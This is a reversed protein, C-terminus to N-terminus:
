GSAKSTWLTDGYDQLAQHLDLAALVARQAHDAEALATGFMAMLSRGAMYLLAGGHRQVATRAQDCVMRMVDYFTAPRTRASLALANTLSCSLMTVPQQEGSSVVLSSADPVTKPSTPTADNPCMEVAAVFRYGSGYITRIFLQARGKDGIAQRVTRLTSELTADSIHQRPWVEEYLEHKTVVRDYHELLYTLVRLVKPRLQILQGNRRLTHCHTNLECDGFIYKM